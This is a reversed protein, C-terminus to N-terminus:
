TRPARRPKMWARRAAIPPLFAKRSRRRARTSPARSAAAVVFKFIFWLLILFAIIQGIFTANIDM